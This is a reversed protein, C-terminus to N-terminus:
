PVPIISGLDGDWDDSRCPEGNCVHEIYGDPQFFTDIMTVPGTAGRPAGHPDEWQPNPPVNAYAPPETGIDQSLNLPNLRYPGGDWYVISSGRYPYEGAGIRPVNWLGEYDPWRATDIGGANTQMGVTRAQGESAAHCSTCGLEGLLLLGAEVRDAGEARGFREFGPVTPAASAHPAISATVVFAVLPIRATM